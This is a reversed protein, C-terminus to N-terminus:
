PWDLAQGLFAPLTREDRDTITFDGKWPLGKAQTRLEGKLFQSRLELFSHCIRNRAPELVLPILCAKPNDSM